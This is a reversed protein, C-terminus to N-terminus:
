SRPFPLSKILVSVISGDRLDTTQRVSPSRLVVSRHDILRNGDFLHIM